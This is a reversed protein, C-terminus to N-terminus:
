IWIDYSYWPSYIQSNIQQSVSSSSSVLDVKEVTNYIFKIEIKIKFLKERESKKWLM